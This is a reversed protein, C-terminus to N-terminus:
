LVTQPQEHGTTLNTLVYSTSGNVERTKIYGRALLFGLCREIEDTDKMLESALLRLLTDAEIPLGNFRKFVFLLTDSIDRCNNEVCERGM